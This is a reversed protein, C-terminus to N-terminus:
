LTRQPVPHKKPESCSLCDSTSSPSRLYLVDERLSRARWSPNGIDRRRFPSGGRLARAGSPLPLPPAPPGAPPPAATQQVPQDWSAPSWPRLWRPALCTRCVVLFRDSLSSCVLLRCSSLVPPPSSSILSLISSLSLTVLPWIYLLHQFIFTAWKSCLLM